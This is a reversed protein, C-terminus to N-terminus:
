QTVIMFFRYLKPPIYEVPSFVVFREAALMDLSRQSSLFLLCLSPLYHNIPKTVLIYLEALLKQSLLGGPVDKKHLQQVLCRHSNLVSNADDPVSIIFLACYSSRVTTM